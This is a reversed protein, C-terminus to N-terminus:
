ILVECFSANRLVGPLVNWEGSVKMFEVIKWFGTILFPLQCSPSEQSVKVFSANRLVGSWVNWEGSVKMFEDIKWFGTIWFPLQSSPSEQSVKVFLPM